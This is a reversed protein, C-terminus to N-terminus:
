SELAEICYVKDAILKVGQNITNLVKIDVYQM